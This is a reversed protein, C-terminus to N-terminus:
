QLMRVVAISIFKAMTHGYLQGVWYIACFGIAFGVVVNSKM